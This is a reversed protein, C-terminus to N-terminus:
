LYEAVRHNHWFLQKIGQVPRPIADDHDMLVRRPPEMNTHGSVPLFHAPSDPHINPIGVINYVGPIDEYNYTDCELIPDYGAITAFHIIFFVRIEDLRCHTLIVKVKGYQIPSSSTLGRLVVSRGNMRVWNGVQLVMGKETMRNVMRVKARYKLKAQLGAVDRDMIMYDRSYASNLEIDLLSGLVIFLPYNKILDRKLQKTVRLNAYANGAGVLSQECEDVEHDALTWPVIKGMISPCYERLHSFTKSIQLHTDSRNGLAVSHISDKRAVDLLIQKDVNVKNAHQAKDKLGRHKLEGVSVEVNPVTCYDRLCNRAYIVQHINPRKTLKTGADEDTKTGCHQAFHQYYQRFELM